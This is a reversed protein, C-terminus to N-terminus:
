IHAYKGNVARLTIKDNNPGKIKDENKQLTTWGGFVDQISLLVVLVLVKLIVM